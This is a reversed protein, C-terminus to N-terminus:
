ASVLRVATGRGTSSEIQPTVGIIEAREQM